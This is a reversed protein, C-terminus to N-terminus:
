REIIFPPLLSVLVDQMQVFVSEYLDIRIAVNPRESRQENGTTKRRKPESHSGDLNYFRFRLASRHLPLADDGM